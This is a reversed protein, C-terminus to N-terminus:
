DNRGAFYPQKGALALREDLATMVLNEEEETLGHADKEIRNLLAKMRSPSIDGPISMAYAFLSDPRLEEDDFFGRLRDLESRIAYYGV